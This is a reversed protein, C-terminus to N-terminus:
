LDTAGEIPTNRTSLRETRVRDLPLVVALVVAFLLALATTPGWLTLLVWVWWAM